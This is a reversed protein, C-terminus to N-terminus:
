ICLDLSQVTDLLICLDLSQVTNEGFCFENCVFGNHGCPLLLQWFSVDTFVFCNTIQLLLFMQCLLVNQLIRLVFVILLGCFLVFCNTIQLVFVNSVIFCKTFSAACVGNVIRLVVCFLKYDAFVFVNLLLVNQLGCCLCLLQCDALLVFYNTIQSFLTSVIFCRDVHLYLVIIVCSYIM